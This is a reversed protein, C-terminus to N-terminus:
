TLSYCGPALCGSIEPRFCTFSMCAVLQNDHTLGFHWGAPDELGQLHYRQYFDCAERGPVIVLAAERASCVRPSEGAQHREWHKVVEPKTIRLCDLLSLRPKACGHDTVNRHAKQRCTPGCHEADARAEFLRRCVPCIKSRAAQRLARRAQAQRHSRLHRKLLQPNVQRGCVQCQCQGKQGPAPFQIVCGDAMLLPPAVGACTLTQSTMMTRADSQPWNV